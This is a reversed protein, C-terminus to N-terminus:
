GLAGGAEAEQERIFFLLDFAVTEAGAQRLLTTVQGRHYTGHNVLHQLLYVLPMSFEKGGMDTYKLRALLADDKLGSLFEQREQEIADAFGQLGSLTALADVAVGGNSMASGMASAQRTDAVTARPSSGKWRKLWIWEAALIHLVSEQISPFSSQMTAAFQEDSLKELVSFMRRNAWRNYAYLTQVDATNM